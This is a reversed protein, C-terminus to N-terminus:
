IKECLYDIKPGDYDTIRQISIRVTTFIDFYTLNKDEPISNQARPKGGNWM